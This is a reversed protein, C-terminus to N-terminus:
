NQDAEPFLPLQALARKQDDRRKELELAIASLHYVLTGPFTTSHRNPYALGRRIIVKYGKTGSLEKVILCTDLSRGNKGAQCYGSGLEVLVGYHRMTETWVQLADQWSIPGTQDHRRQM